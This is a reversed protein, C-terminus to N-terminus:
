LRRCERPTMGSGPRWLSGTAGLSQQLQTQGLLSGPQVQQQQPQQANGGLISGGFPQQQTTTGFLSQNLQPQQQQQQQQQNNGFSGFLGTNPTIGPTTGTQQGQTTTTTGFGFRNLTEPALNGFMNNGTQQTQQPQQPQQPQGFNGFMNKGTTQTQQQANNNPNSVLSFPSPTNATQQQFASSGYSGFLNSM